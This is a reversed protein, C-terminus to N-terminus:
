QLAGKRNNKIKGVLIMFNRLEKMLLFARLFKFIKRNVSLQESREPISVGQGKNDSFIELCEDGQGHQSSIWWTNRALRLM